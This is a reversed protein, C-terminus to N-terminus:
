NNLELRVNSNNVDLLVCDKEIVLVTAGNIKDGEELVYGNIIAQPGDELYMIGSLNFLPNRKTVFSVPNTKPPTFDEVVKPASVSADRSEQSVPVRKSKDANRDSYQLSLRLGYALLLIALIGVLAPLRKSTINKIDHPIQIEPAPLAAEKVSDACKVSETVEPIKKESFDGQAKKLAEQIISM